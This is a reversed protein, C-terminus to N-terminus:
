VAEHMLAILADRAADISGFRNVAERLMVDLHTVIAIVACPADWQAPITTVTVV